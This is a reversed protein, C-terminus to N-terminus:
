QDRVISRPSQQSSKLIPPNSNQPLGFCIGPSTGLQFLGAILGKGILAYTAEDDFPIEELKIEIGHNAKIMQLCEYTQTFSRVGLSDFRIIGVDEVAKGDFQTAIQDHRDKFLPVYNTLPGDSVVIASAHCSVHRKLGEVAKSMEIWERNEPLEALAQFEPAQELAEDLTIWATYPILKTLSEVKELPVELARGVKKVAAKAGLIAFTAVKGVADAGYKKALYEIVLERARDAFDIDIDPPALRELNLFREFLCGHDMPNFSIVDLAYLVLSSGASGRASLPYGQKHAHAVYDSVILFYNAHGTKKIVDLEYDVRQRLPESLEGYKKRLGRYCLEQLYSDHTDGEPVKYKPMPDRQYDLKLNCRNTIELTNSIAEPPYDKLAERMEDFVKLTSTTTLGRVSKTTSLRGRRSVSSCTTCRTILNVSITAIM